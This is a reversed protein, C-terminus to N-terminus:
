DKKTRCLHQPRGDKRGLGSCRARNPLPRLQASVHRRAQPSTSATDAAHQGANVQRNDARFRTAWLFSDPDGRRSPKWVISTACSRAHGGLMRVAEDVPTTLISSMANPENRWVEYRARSNRAIAPLGISNDEVQM